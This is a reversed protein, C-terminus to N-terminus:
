ARIHNPVQCQSTINLYEQITKTKIDLLNLLTPFLNDHSLSTNKHKALCNLQNSANKKWPESFWMFMPIHTQQSPAIAYPSGHLYLGHEGTSEGHDSLYWFGTQYHEVEALTQIISSLVHDTYVISNDYSNLLEQASCGQISKTNCAPQFPQYAATTRKYYAPGHSGMQHLVILRSTDDNKDLHALYNKLSDVLIEDHCEDDANCWKDEINSPIQFKEVRECVGKCGSNNDIWTVKYGARQAIDLLGERLKALNADYANRTMGSFMCPVSVATATGCSSVQSFNILDLKSLEPNTNKAYGNLSFSEARATEGVVLVMLKPHTSISTRKIIHADEGYTILALNQKPEQKKYYSILSAIVNQPSIMSKLERNERFIAAYDVYYIFLLGSIFILSIFINIFKKLLISATKEVRIPLFYVLILPAVIFALVWIIFKFTLLDFAEKTDTQLINQIQDSNIIVGLSNVFYASLGGLVIWITMLIKVSLRWHIIQFILHYLNVIILSSAVIFLTSSLGQYPTLDALHQYFSVNLAVALWIAFIANFLDLSVTPIKQSFFHDSVM